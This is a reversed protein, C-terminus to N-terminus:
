QVLGLSVQSSAIFEKYQRHVDIIAEPSEAIEKLAAGIGAFYVAKALPKMGEPLFQMQHEFHEELTM